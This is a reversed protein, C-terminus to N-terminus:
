SNPIKQLMRGIQFSTKLIFQMKKGVSITISSFIYNNSNDKIYSAIKPVRSDRIKRQAKLQPDIRPDDEYRFKDKITAFPCMMIYFERKAQVGRVADFQLGEMVM